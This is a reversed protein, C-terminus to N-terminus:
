TCQGFHAAMILVFNNYKTVNFIVIYITYLYVIQVISFSISKGNGTFPGWWGDSSRHVHKALARAGVTLKNGKVELFLIQLHSFLLVYCYMISFVVLPMCEMKM